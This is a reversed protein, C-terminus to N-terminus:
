YTINELHHYRMTFRSRRYNDILCLSTLSDTFLHWRGEGEGEPPALPLERLAVLIALLEARVVSQTGDFTVHMETLRDESLYGGPSYVGAGAPAGALSRKSGDTYLCLDRDFATRDGERERRVLALQISREGTLFCVGQQWEKVGRVAELRPM